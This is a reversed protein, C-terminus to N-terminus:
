TACIYQDHQVCLDDMDVCSNSMDCVCHTMDCTDNNIDHFITLAQSQQKYQKKSKWTLFRFKQGGISNEYSRSRQRVDKLFRCIM